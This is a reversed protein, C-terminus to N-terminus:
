RTSPGVVVVLNYVDNTQHGAVVTFAGRYTGPTVFRARFGNAVREITPAGSGAPFWVREFHPDAWVVETGAPVSIRHAQDFLQRVTLTIRDGDASDSGVPAAFLAGILVLSRLVRIVAAELRDSVIWAARRQAAHRGTEERRQTQAGADRRGLHPGYTYAALSAASSEDRGAPSPPTTETPM